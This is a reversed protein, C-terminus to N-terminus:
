RRLKRREEEIRRVVPYKPDSWFTCRQVRVIGGSSGSMHGRDKASFFGVIAVYNSDLREIEKEMQKTREVWLGNRLIGHLYDNEGLYLADEEEELRLYGTVYVLKGAYKEPSALLAVLSVPLASDVPPRAGLLGILMSVSVFALLYIPLKM